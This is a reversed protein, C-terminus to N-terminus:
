KGVDDCIHGVAAHLIHGALSTFAVYKQQQTQSGPCLYFKDYFYVMINLRINIAKSILKFWGALSLTIVIEIRILFM